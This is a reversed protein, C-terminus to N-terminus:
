RRSIRKRCERDGRWRGVRLPNGLVPQEGVTEVFLMHRWTVNASAGCTAAGYGIRHVRSTAVTLLSRERKAAPLPGTAFIVDVM